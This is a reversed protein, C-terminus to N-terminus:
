PSPNRFELLTGRNKQVEPWTGVDFRGLMIGAPALGDPIGGFLFSGLLTLGPNHSCIVVFSLDEPQQWLIELIEEPGPLYLSGPHHLNEPALGWVGAAIEATERTRLAPSTYFNGPTGSHHYLFREAAWAAAEATEKRGRATLPRDFDDMVGGPHVAEGHRLFLLYKM